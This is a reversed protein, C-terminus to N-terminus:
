ADDESHRARLAEACAELTEIGTERSTNSHYCLTEHTGFIILCTGGCDTVRHLLALSADTIHERVYDQAGWACETAANRPIPGGPRQARRDLWRYLWSSALYTVAFSATGALLTTALTNM